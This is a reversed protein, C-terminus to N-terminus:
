AAHIGHMSRPNASPGPRIPDGAGARALGYIEVREQFGRVRVPGHAHLTQAIAGAREFTTRDVLLLAKFDRTLSQLRSALNTTSGLATWIHRDVGRINGVFAPGTAVGVGVDLGLASVAEPIEQAAILAAREKRELPLPAGFLAMM